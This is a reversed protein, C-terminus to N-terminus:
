DWEGADCDEGVESLAWKASAFATAGGYGKRALQSVMRRLRVEYPLGMTARAKKLAVARAANQEDTQDLQELAATIAQASLKKKVLETRLARRSLGRSEHLSRVLMQAYENDDLIKAAILRSVVQECIHKQYGRLALKQAIVGSSYARMDLLRLAYERAEVFAQEDSLQANREIRKKGAESVPM